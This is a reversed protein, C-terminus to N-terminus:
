KGKKRLISRTDSSGGQTGGGTVIRIIFMFISLVFLFLYLSAFSFSTGPIDTQRMFDWWTAINTGIIQLANSM